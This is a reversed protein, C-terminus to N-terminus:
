GFTYYVGDKEAVVIEYGSLLLVEENESNEAMVYFTVHYFNDTDNKVTDYFNKEFTEDFSTFFDQIMKESDDDTKELRLRTIKFNDGAKVTLNQRQTEFSEELGYSYNEELFATMEDVYLPYLCSKFKEFDNEAFAIFYKELTLVLDKPYDDDNFYLKTGDHSYRYDGLNYEEDNEDPTILEGTEGDAVSPMESINKGNGDGCATLMCCCLILILLKKM